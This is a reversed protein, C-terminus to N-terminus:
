FKNQVCFGTCKFFTITLIYEKLLNLPTVKSESCETHMWDGHITNIYACVPLEGYTNPMGVGWNSYIMPNKDSWEFTQLSSKDSLGIWRTKDKSTPRSCVYAHIESCNRSVWHNTEGRNLACNEGDTDINGEEWNFYMFPTGDVWVWSGEDQEDTGGLWLEEGELLYRKLIAQDAASKVMFLDSGAELCSSRAEAWTLLYPSVFVCIGSDEIFNEPCPPGSNILAFVEEQESYSQISVLDGGKAKCATVADEWQLDDDQLLYCWGKALSWGIPCGYYAGLSLTSVTLLLWSKVLYNFYYM